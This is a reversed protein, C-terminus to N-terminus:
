TPRTPAATGGADPDRGLDYVAVDPIPCFSDTVRVSGGAGVRHGPLAEMLARLIDSQADFHRPGEAAVDCIVGEVLEVRRPLGDITLFEDTTFRHVYSLAMAVM